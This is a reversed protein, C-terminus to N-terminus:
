VVRAGAELELGGFATNTPLGFTWPWSTARRKVLRIIMAGLLNPGLAAAM